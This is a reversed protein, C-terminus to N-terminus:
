HIFRAKKYLQSLQPGQPNKQGFVAKFENGQRVVGILLGTSGFLKYYYFSIEHQEPMELIMLPVSITEMAEGSLENFGFSQGDFNKISKPISVFNGFPDNACLGQQKEIALKKTPM